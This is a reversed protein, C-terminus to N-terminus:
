FYRKLSRKIQGHGLKENKSLFLLFNEPPESREGIGIFVCFFIEPESREGSVFEPPGDGNGVGDSVNKSLEPPDNGNGVGYSM